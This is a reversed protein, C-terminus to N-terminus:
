FSGATRVRSERYLDYVSGLEFARVDQLQLRAICSSAGTSRRTAAAYHWAAKTHRTVIDSIGITKVKGEKQVAVCAGLAQRRADPGGWLGHILYFDISGPGCLEFAGTNARRITDIAANKNLKTSLYGRSRSACWVSEFLRYHNSANM